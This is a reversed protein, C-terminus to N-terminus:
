CGGEGQVPIPHVIPFSEEGLADYYEDVHQLPSDCCLFASWIEGAQAVREALRGSEKEEELYRLLGAYNMGSSPGGLIGRRLLKISAEFSEKAPLEITANAINQWDFSVDSLQAVQRPGPVAEGKKPCCAVIELDPKRERLAGGVGVMTGCTGLACSFISLRGRSQAWIDPGLYRAFGEPNDPNSYQGPNLWGEKSGYARARDSRPPTVDYLEHDPAPHLFTEIGFLRLMRLLGPAISHDVLAHTKEIGFLRAIISLSMVTNSSSSEIINEVGSLDGREAAKSLMSFAPISKVNMLPVLPMLKAFIRVGDARFPNLDCPLEVMPAPAYNAPSLFEKLGDEGFYTGGSKGLMTVSDQQRAITTVSSTAPRRATSTNKKAWTRGLYSDADALIEVLTNMESRTETGISLRLFPDEFPTSPATVYLRSVDFGFSTGFAIPHNRQRAIELVKNEFERYEQVTRYQRLLRLSLVSSRYWPAQEFGEGVWSISEIIGNEGSRDSKAQERIREELGDAVVQMNRSHRQMRRTLRQLNPLPLSGVSGDSINTGFRARTKRLSDHQGDSLDAVIVGGTVTDMGLQHHKALSEVFIVTVNDGLGELLGEELFLIPLCTTDLVIYVKHQAENRAWQLVSEYEHKVVEGCNAVVDCFVVSPQKARLFETLDDGSGPRVQAIAPFFARALHLNEFYMPEVAVAQWDCNAEHALWHLVTSFAAMGSNTLYSRLRDSGLHTLYEENFKKEYEIAEFHGDRKYDWAHEAIGESYRNATYAITGDYMPSQWDFACSMAGKLRFIGRLSNKVAFYEQRVQKVLRAMDEPGSWRATREVLDFSRRVRARLNREAILINSLSPEDVGEPLTGDYACDVLFRLEQLDDVLDVVDDNVHFRTADFARGSSVEDNRNGANSVVHQEIIM